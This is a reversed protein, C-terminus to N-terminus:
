LLIGSVIDYGVLLIAIWLTYLIQMLIDIPYGYICGGIEYRMKLAEVLIPDM